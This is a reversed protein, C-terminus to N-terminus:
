YSKISKLILFINKFDIGKHDLYSYFIHNEIEVLDYKNLIKNIINKNIM